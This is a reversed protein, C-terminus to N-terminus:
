FEFAIAVSVALLYCSAAVLEYAIESKDSPIEAMSSAKAKNIVKLSSLM